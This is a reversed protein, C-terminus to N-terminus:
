TSTVIEFFEKKARGCDPDSAFEVNYRSPVFAARPGLTPCGIRLDGDTPDNLDDLTLKEYARALPRASICRFKVRTLLM